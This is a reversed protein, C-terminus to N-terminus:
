SNKLTFLVRRRGFGKPHYIFWKNILLKAIKHKNGLGKWKYNFIITDKLNISIGRLKVWQGHTELLSDSRYQKQSFSSSSIFFLIIFILKM